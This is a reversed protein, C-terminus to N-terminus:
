SRAAPVHKGLWSPVISALNLSFPKMHMTSLSSYNISNTKSVNAKKDVKADRRAWSRPPRTQWCAHHHHPHLHRGLSSETRYLVMRFGRVCVHRTIRECYSFFFFGGMQKKKRVQVSGPFRSRYRRRYRRSRTSRISSSLARCGEFDVIM